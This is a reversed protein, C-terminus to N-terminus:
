ATPKTNTDANFLLPQGTDLIKQILRDPARPSFEVRQGHEVVLPYSVVGRADDYLVLYYSDPNLSAEIHSRVTEYVEKLGTAQSVARSAQGITALETLRHQAQQYQRANYTALAAQNALTM